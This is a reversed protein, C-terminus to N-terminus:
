SSRASTSTAPEEPWSGDPKRRLIHAEIRISDVMLIEMVSDLTTYLPGNDWTAARNSPSLVEVLLLPSPTTHEDPRNPACTVGLEPVCHNWRSLIRPRIGPNVVVRCGPMRADVHNALMTDLRSRITGHADSVADRARVEGHVLELIRGHPDPPPKLFEVTIRFAHSPPPTRAADVSM